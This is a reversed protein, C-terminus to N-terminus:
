DEWKDLFNQLHYPVSESWTETEADYDYIHGQDWLSYIHDTGIPDSQPWNKREIKIHPDEHSGLWYLINDDTISRLHHWQSHRYEMSNCLAQILTDYDYNTASYSAGM